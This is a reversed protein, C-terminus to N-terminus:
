ESEEGEKREYKECGTATSLCAKFISKENHCRHFEKTEHFTGLPEGFYRCKGCTKENMDKRMRKGKAYESIRGDTKRCM